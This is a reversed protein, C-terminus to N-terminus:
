RNGADRDDYRRYNHLYECFPPFNSNQDVMYGPIACIYHVFGLLKECQLKPSGHPFMPFQTFTWLNKLPYKKDVLIVIKKTNKALIISLMSNQLLAVQVSRILRLRDQEANFSSCFRKKSALNGESTGSIIPRVTIICTEAHIHSKVLPKKFFKSPHRKANM